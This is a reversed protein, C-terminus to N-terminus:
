VTRGAQAVATATGMDWPRREVDLHSGSRQSTHKSHRRPNGWEEWAV